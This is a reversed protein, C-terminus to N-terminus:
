SDGCRSEGTTDSENVTICRNIFGGSLIELLILLMNSFGAVKVEHDVLVLASGWGLYTECDELRRLEFLCVILSVEVRSIAKM